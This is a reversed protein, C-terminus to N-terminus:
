TKSMMRLSLREHILLHHKALWPHPLMSHHTPSQYENFHPRGTYVLETYIINMAIGYITRVFHCMYHALDICTTSLIKMESPTMLVLCKKVLFKGVYREKENFCRSVYEMEM